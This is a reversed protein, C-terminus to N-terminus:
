FPVSGSDEEPYEITKEEKNVGFGQSTAWIELALIRSELPTKETPESGEALLTRNIYNKEPHDPIKNGSDEKKLFGRVEAGITVKDYDPFDSWIKTRPELHDQDEAKVTADKYPKGTKTMREEVKIITYLM